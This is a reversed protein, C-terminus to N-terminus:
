PMAARRLRSQTLNAGWVTGPAQHLARLRGPPCAPGRPRDPSGRGRRPWPTRRPRMRVGRAHTTRLAARSSRGPGLVLLRAGAEPKREAQYRAPVHRGSRGGTFLGGAQLRAVDASPARVGASVAPPTPRETRGCPGRGAPVQCRPSNTAVGPRHLNWLHAHPRAGATLWSRPSRVPGPAGVREALPATLPSAEPNTEPHTGRSPADPTDSNGPDRFRCAPWGALALPIPFSLCTTLNCFGTNGVGLIKVLLHNERRGM